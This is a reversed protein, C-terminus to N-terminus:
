YNGNKEQGASSEYCKEVVEMTCFADEVSNIYNYDPNEMKKMLGAMTGIFADPFWSGEIELTQWGQDNETTIFEFQDPLGEPYNLNLGVVIKIAGTTGEFKFYSEQHRIGFDHGHNTNINARIFDGYDMIISSRTNALEPMNPHKTTKALVRKPNGLFYRIMDIYHISNYLIEMRPLEYLFGWLHWPTLVNIRVDIDHLDGINGNDIMEKAAKIYPAHRLQFNIGAVLEKKKCLNLIAKAEEIDEGMPKQILVGSKDPLLPLVRLIASAPLAMDFICKDRKAISILENIDKCVVPIEFTTALKCAKNINLDYIANVKFGAKRYAPLHADGVIGGAGIIVIPRKNIPLDPSINSKM